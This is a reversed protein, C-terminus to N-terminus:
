CTMMIWWGCSLKCINLMVPVILLNVADRLDQHRMIQSIQCEMFDFKSLTPKEITEELLTGRALTICLMENIM